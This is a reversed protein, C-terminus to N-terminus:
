TGIPSSEDAARVGPDNHPVILRGQYPEPALFAALDLRLVKRPVEDDLKTQHGLVQVPAPILGIGPLHNRVDLLPDKM